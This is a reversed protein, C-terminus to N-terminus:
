SDPARETRGRDTATFPTDLHRRDGDLRPPRTPALPSDDIRSGGLTAQGPHTQPDGSSHFLPLRHRFVDLFM